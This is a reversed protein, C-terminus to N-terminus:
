MYSYKCTLLSEYLIATQPYISLTPHIMYWLLTIFELGELLYYLTSPLM